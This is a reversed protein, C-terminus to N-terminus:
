ASQLNRDAEGLPHCEQLTKGLPKMVLAKIVKSADSFLGTNLTAHNRYADRLGNGIDAPVLGAPFSRSKIERYLMGGVQFRLALALLCKWDAPSLKELRAEPIEGGSVFGCLLRAAEGNEM